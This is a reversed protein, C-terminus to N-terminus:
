TTIFVVFVIEDVAAPKLDSVRVGQLHCIKTSVYRVTVHVTTHVRIYSMTRKTTEISSLINILLAPLSCSINMISYIVVVSDCV